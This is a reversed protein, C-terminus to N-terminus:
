LLISKEPILNLLGSVQLYLVVDQLIRLDVLLLTEYSIWDCACVSCLIALLPLLSIFIVVQRPRGILFVEASVEM